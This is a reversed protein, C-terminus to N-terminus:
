KEAEEAEKMMAARIETQRAIINEPENRAYREYRERGVVKRVDEPLADYEVGYVLSNIAMTIPKNKAARAEDIKAVIQGVGPMTPYDRRDSKAFDIVAARVMKFEYEKLVLYWADIMTAATASSNNRFYAMLLKVIEATEKRTM